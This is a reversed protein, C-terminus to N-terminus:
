QGQSVMAAIKAASVDESDLITTLTTSASIKWWKDLFNWIPPSKEKKLTM